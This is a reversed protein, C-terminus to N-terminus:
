NFNVAIINQHTEIKKAEMPTHIHFFTFKQETVHVNRRFRGNAWRTQFDVDVTECEYMHQNFNVVIIKQHTEIKQGGHTNTNSFDYFFTFKQDSVYVNRRFPGNEWRTPFDVDIIECEYM